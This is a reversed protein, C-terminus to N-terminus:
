PSIETGCHLFVNATKEMQDGVVVSVEARPLLSSASLSPFGLFAAHFFLFDDARDLLHMLDLDRLKQKLVLRLQLVAATLCGTDATVM